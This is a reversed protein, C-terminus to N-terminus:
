WAPSAGPYTPGDLYAGALLDLTRGRARIRRSSDTHTSISSRCVDCTTRRRVGCRDPTAPCGRDGTPESGYSEGRPYQRVQRRMMEEMSRAVRVATIEKDERRLDVGEVVTKKVARSHTFGEIQCHVFSLRLLRAVRVPTFCAAADALGRSSRCCTM